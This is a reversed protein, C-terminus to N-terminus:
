EANFVGKWLKIFNIRRQSYSDTNKNVVKTIRDVIDTGFGEDAINYLENKLWFSAASRVAYKMTILLDPNEIFDPNDGPWQRANQRHWRQLEIYNYRGTLHKLGRGRFTWGDGSSVGRNGLETRAGYAGNAIAKYDAQIMPAGNAKIKGQRIEYGHEEAKSPNSKFYSFIEVLSTAAYSFDEELTLNPGTEQFIQAFFHARRLPTELRYFDLHANLEGAIERLDGDRAGGLGQYIQKMIELNFTFGTNKFSAALGVPHFHYVKGDEPLGVKERVEDWWCLEKIREKEALWNVHPTSGSHGLLEDLADWKHPRHFWESEKLVILQSISQAHAPVNLAAQLEEATVKGDRNRDIIDFLRRQVPGKDGADAMPGYRELQAGSFRDVARYFSALHERPSSYDFIVEYGDWSWPNVWPTVGIEECVWGDLVANDADNLLGDLRYWQRAGRGPVAPSAIKYEAPLDDLLSKPVLLDAGSFLNAGSLQPRCTPGFDDQHALVPTGKALKLWTKDRDPLREAWARSAKLFANADQESFVELHLKNEPREAGYNQYQGIHGILDSAKIPVPQDLVVVRDHALPELAGQLSPYHVYQNVRELKRFESEGSVTVETGPPLKMLVASGIDAETYVGLPNGNKVRYQGAAIPELHHMSLYGLLAGDAGILVDPGLTNELKRYNGDGSVTVEACPPLLTLVKGQHAMNRVNLGLQEPHGHLTDNVTEKVRRTKGEPWFGPRAMAPDQQYVAWNQLHMYLSYVTLSPPTDPSGKIKPPQLRHRVLVFNRSFPKNVTLKNIQYGTTPAHQDIRYAVVEGDALCHVSSQDLVEATGADFHVGGHWLGNRGLPYYGATAKALQTLQLLPHSKDKFPHSWTKVPSLEGDEHKLPSPSKIPKTDPTPWIPADAQDPRADWRYDSREFLRLLSNLM